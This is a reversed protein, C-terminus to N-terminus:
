HDLDPLKCICSSIRPLHIDLYSQTLFCAHHNSRTPWTPPAFNQLKIVPQAASNYPHGALPTALFKRCSTRKRGKGGRGRKRGVKREEEEGRRGERM